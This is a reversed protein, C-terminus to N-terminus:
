IEDLEISYRIQPDKEETIVVKAKCVEYSDIIEGKQKIYKTTRSFQVLEFRTDKKLREHLQEADEISHVRYTLTMNLLYEVM